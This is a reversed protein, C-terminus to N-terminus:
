RWVHGQLPVGSQNPYHSRVYQVVCMPMSKRQNNGRATPDMAVAQRRTRLLSNQIEVHKRTGLIEAHELVKLRRTVACRVELMSTTKKKM